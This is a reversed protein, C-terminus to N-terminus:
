FFSRYFIGSVGLQPESQTEDTNDEKSSIAAALPAKMLQLEIKSSNCVAM